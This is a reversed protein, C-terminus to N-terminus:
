KTFEARRDRKQPMERKRQKIESGSQAAYQDQYGSGNGRGIRVKGGKELRGPLLSSGAWVERV